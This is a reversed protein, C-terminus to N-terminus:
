LDSEILIPDNGNEFQRLCAALYYVHFKVQMTFKAPVRVGFACSLEIM